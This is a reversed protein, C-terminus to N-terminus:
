HRRPLSFFYWRFTSCFRVLQTILTITGVIDTYSFITVVLITTSILYHEHSLGFGIPGIIKHSFCVIFTEKTLTMDPLAATMLSLQSSVRKKARLLM